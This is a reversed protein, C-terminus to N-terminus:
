FYARAESVFKQFLKTEASGWRIVHQLNLTFHEGVAYAAQSEIRWTEGIGFGDMLAYPLAAAESRVRTWSGACHANNGQGDKWNLTLSGQLSNAALTGTGDDGRSVRGKGGPELSFGAPLERRWSASLGRVVWHLDLAASRDVTERFVGLNLTERERGTYRGDAQQWQKEQWIGVTGGKKENAIGQRYEWSAWGGGHTWEVIGETSTTGEDRKRLQAPLIPPNGRLASSTDWAEYEGRYGLGIDALLGQRVGALLGPRVDTELSLRAHSSQVATASDSRGLGVFQYNGNDVGEIFEGALSDYIVDGTGDPVREYLREWPIEQTYGLEYGVKGRIPANVTGYEGTQRVLWTELNGLSDRQSRRYQLLHGANWEKGRWEGSQTWQAVDATDSQEGLLEVRGHRPSEAQGYEIGSSARLLTDRETPRKWWAARGAAFPRWLGHTFQADADGQWRESSGNQTAAVRTVALGSQSTEDNHRLYGQALSSNWQGSDQWPRRYGFRIGPYWSGLRLRMDVDDYHRGGSLGASDLDWDERLVYPNWLQISGGHDGAVYDTEQIDGKWLLRLADRQRWTSDSNLEWRFSRGVPGQVRPSASNSDLRYWSWELDTYRRNEWSSRLRAAARDTQRPRELVSGSDDVVGASDGRDNQLGDWESQSWASRRMRDLDAGLSFGALDLWIHPSRYWSEAAQLIQLNGARYVDYEVRIEDSSGPLLSGLFDLVGGAANLDYDLGARLLRGNWYVNESGPVVVEFQATGSLVYGKQQGPNGSFTSIRRETADAGYIARAGAAQGQVGGSVGRTSRRIGITGMRDLTYDQDGLWIFGYKGSLKFYMRDVEQLTATSQDGAERGVDVLHADVDLGPRVEGQISLRLEQSIDTGGDGVRVSVSKSGSTTLNSSDQIVPQLATESALPAESWVPLSDPIIGTRGTAYLMSALGLILAMLLKSSM